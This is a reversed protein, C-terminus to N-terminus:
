PVRRFDEEDSPSQQSDPLVDWQLVRAFVWNAAVAAAVLLVLVSQPGSTRSSKLSEAHAYQLPLCLVLTLATSALATLGLVRAGEPQRAVVVSTLLWAAASVLALCTAWGSLAAWSLGAEPWCVLTASLIVVGTVLTWAVETSRAQRGVWGPPGLHRISEASVPADDLLNSGWEVLKCLRTWDGFVGLGFDVEARIRGESVRLEQTKKYLWLLWHRRVPTLLEVSGRVWFAADFEADRTKKADHPQGAALADGAQRPTVQLNRPLWSPDASLVLVSKQARGAARKQVELRLQPKSASTGALSLNFLRALRTLQRTPSSLWVCLLVFGVLAALVILLVLASDM